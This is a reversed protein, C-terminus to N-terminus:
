SLLPRLEAYTAELGHSFIDGGFSRDNTIYLIAPVKNAHIVALVHILDGLRGGTIYLPDGEMDEKKLWRKGQNLSM